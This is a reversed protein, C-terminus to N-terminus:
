DVLGSKLESGDLLLGHMFSDTRSGVGTPGGGISSSSSRAASTAGGSGVIAAPVAGTGTSGGGGGGVGGANGGALMGLEEVSVGGNLQAGLQLLSLDNYLLDDLSPTTCGGGGGNLSATESFYPSSGSDSSSTNNAGATPAAGGGGRRNALMFNKVDFNVKQKNAPPKFYYNFRKFSEIDREESELDHLSVRQNPAFLGLNDSNSFPFCPSM